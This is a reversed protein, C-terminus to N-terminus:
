LHVPHKWFTGVLLNNVAGQSCWNQEEHRRRIDEVAKFLGSINGAFHQKWSIGAFASM